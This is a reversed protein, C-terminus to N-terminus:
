AHTDESFQQILMLQEPYILIKGRLLNIFGLHVLRSIHRNISRVSVGSIHSLEDRSLSIKLLEKPHTENAIFLITDIFIILTNSYLHKGYNRGISYMNTAIETAVWYCFVNDKKLWKNLLSSPIAICKVNNIAIVTVSALKQNALLAHSGILTPSKNKTFKYIRGDPFENIVQALGSYILFVSHIESDKKLIVEGDQFEKFHFYMAIEQPLNKIIEYITPYYAEFHKLQIM